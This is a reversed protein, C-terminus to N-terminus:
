RRIDSSVSPHLISDATKRKRPIHNGDKSTNYLLCEDCDGLRERGKVNGGSRSRWIGHFGGPILVFRGRVGDFIPDYASDPQYVPVRVFGQKRAAIGVVVDYDAVLTRTTDVPTLTACRKGCGHVGTYTYVKGDMAQEHLEKFNGGFFGAAWSAAPSPFCMEPLSSWLISEDSVSGSGAGDLVHFMAAWGEWTAGIGCASVDLCFPEANLDIDRGLTEPMLAGKPYKVGMLITVGGTAESFAPITLRVRVGASAKVPILLLGGQEDRAAIVFSLIRGGTQIVLRREDGFQVFIKDCAMEEWFSRRSPFHLAWSDDDMPEGYYSRSAGGPWQITSLKNGVGGRVVRKEIFPIVVLRTGFRIVGRGLVWTGNNGRPLVLNYGFLAIHVVSSLALVVLAPLGAILLFAKAYVGSLGFASKYLEGFSFVQLDVIGSALQGNYVVGCYNRASFARTIIGVTGTSSLALTIFDTVNTSCGQYVWLTYIISGAVLLSTIEWIMPLLDRDHEFFELNEPVGAGGQLAEEIKQDVLSALPLGWGRGIPKCPVGKHLMYSPHHSLGEVTEGARDKSDRKNIVEASPSAQNEKSMFRDEFPIHLYGGPTRAEDLLKGAPSLAEERKYKEKRAYRYVRSSAGSERSACGIMTSSRDGNSTNNDVFGEETLHDEWISNAGNDKEPDETADPAM